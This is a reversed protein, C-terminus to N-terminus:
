KHKANDIDDGIDRDQGQGHHRHETQIHLQFPLDLNKTDEQRASHLHKWRCEQQM